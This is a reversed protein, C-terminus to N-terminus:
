LLLSKKRMEDFCLELKTHYSRFYSNIKLVKEADNDHASEFPYLDIRYYYELPYFPNMSYTPYRDKQPQIFCMLECFTEKNSPDSANNPCHLGIKELQNFQMEAFQKIEKIKSKFESAPYIIGESYWVDIIWADGWTDPKKLEGLRNVIVFSHEFNSAKVVEINYIGAKNEWLYKALLCSRLHCNGSRTESCLLAMILLDIQDQTLNFKSDSLPDDKTRALTKIILKDKPSTQTYVWNKSDLTTQSFSSYPPIAIRRKFFGAVRRNRCAQVWGNTKVTDKVKNEAGFICTDRVFKVATQLKVKLKDNVGMLFPGM